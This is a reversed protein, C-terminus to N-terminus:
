IYRANAGENIQNVLDGLVEHKIYYLMRVRLLVRSQHAIPSFLLSFFCVFLTNTIADEYGEQGNNHEGTNPIM